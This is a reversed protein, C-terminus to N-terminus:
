SIGDKKTEGIPRTSNHIPSRLFILGELDGEGYRFLAADPDYGRCVIVGVVSQTQNPQEFGESLCTDFDILKHVRCILKAIEILQGFGSDFSAIQTNRDVRNM